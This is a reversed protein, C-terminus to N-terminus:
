TNISGRYPGSALSFPTRDVANEDEYEDDDEDELSKTPRPELDYFLRRYIKEPGNDGDLVNLLTASGPIHHPLCM